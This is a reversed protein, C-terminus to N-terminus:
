NTCGKAKKLITEVTTKTTTDDNGTFWMEPYVWGDLEYMDIEAMTVDVNFSTNSDLITVKEVLSNKRFVVKFKDDGTAEKVKIDFDSTNSDQLYEAITKTEAVFNCNSLDSADLVFEQYTMNNDAATVNLEAMTLEGADDIVTYWVKDATLTGTYAGSQDNAFTFFPFVTQTKDFDFSGGASNEFGPVPFISIGFIDGNSRSHEIWDISILLKADKLESATVDIRYIAGENVSAMNITTTTASNNHDFAENTWMDNQEDFNSALKSMTFSADSLTGKKDSGSVLTFTTGDFSMIDEGLREDNSVRYFSPYFMNSSSNGFIYEKYDYEENGGISSTDGDGFFVDSEFYITDLDNNEIPFLPIEGFDFSEGNEVIIMKFMGFQNYEGGTTPVGDKDLAVSDHYLRINSAQWGDRTYSLSINNDYAEVRGGRTTNEYIPVFYINSVNTNVSNSFNYVNMSVATDKYNDDGFDGFFDADFENLYYNDEIKDNVAAIAEKVSSMMNTYTSETTVTEGNTGFANAITVMLNKNWTAMQSNSVGSFAADNFQAWWIQTSGDEQTGDSHKLEDPTFGNFFWPMANDMRTTNTLSAENFPNASMVLNVLGMAAAPTIKTTATDITFGAESFKILNDEDNSFPIGGLIPMSVENILFELPNSNHSALQAVFESSTTPTSFISFFNKATGSAMEDNLIETALFELRNAILDEGYAEILDQVSKEPDDMDLTKGNIVDFPNTGSWLKTSGEPTDVTALIDGFADLTKTQQFNKVFFKVVNIPVIPSDSLKQKLDYAWSEYGTIGVLDTTPNIIRLQPDNGGITVNKEQTSDYTVLTYIDGPLSNAKEPETPLFAIVNGSGDHVSLGMYAFSSIVSYTVRGVDEGATAINFNKNLAELTTKLGTKKEDAVKQKLATVYKKATPDQGLSLLGKQRREEATFSTNFNNLSVSNNQLRDFQDKLDDLFGFIADVISSGYNEKLTDLVQMTAATTSPKVDAETQNEDLRPFSLEYYDDSGTPKYKAVVIFPRSLNVDEKFDEVTVNYEDNDNLTINNELLNNTYDTDEFDYIEIWGEGYATTISLLVAMLTKLVKQFM